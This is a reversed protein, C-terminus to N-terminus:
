ALSWGGGGSPRADNPERARPVEDAPLLTGHRARVKLRAVARVRAVSSRAVARRRSARQASRTRVARAGSVAREAAHPFNRL